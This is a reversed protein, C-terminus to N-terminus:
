MYPPTTSPSGPMRTLACRWAGERKSAYMALFLTNEELLLSEEWEYEGKLKRGGEGGDRRGNNGNM